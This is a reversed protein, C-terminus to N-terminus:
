RGGVWVNKSILNQPNLVSVNLTTIPSTRVPLRHLKTPKRDAKRGSRYDVKLPAARMRLVHPAHEPMDLELDREGTARPTRGTRQTQTVRGRQRAPPTETAGRERHTGEAEAKPQWGPCRLDDAIRM